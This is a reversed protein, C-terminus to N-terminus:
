LSTLKKLRSIIEENRAIMGDLIANLKKAEQVLKKELIDTTMTNNDMIHARLSGVTGSYSTFAKNM